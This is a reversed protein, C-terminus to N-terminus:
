RSALSRRQSVAYVAETAPSTTKKRASDQAAVRAPPGERTPQHDRRPGDGTRDEHEAATHHGVPEPRAPNGDEAVPDAAHHDEEGGRGERQRGRAQPQQGPHTALANLTPAVAEASSSM